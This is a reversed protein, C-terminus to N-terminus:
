QITEENLRGVPWSNLGGLLFVETVDSSSTSLRSEKNVIDIKFSASQWRTEITVLRYDWNTCQISKRDPSIIKKLFWSILYLITLCIYRFTFLSTPIVNNLPTWADTLKNAKGCSLKAWVDDVILGPFGNQPWFTLPWPWSACFLNGSHIM